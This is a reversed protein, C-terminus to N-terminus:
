HLQKTIESKVPLRHDAAVDVVLSAESVDLLKTATLAVIFIMCRVLCEGWGSSVLGLRRVVIAPSTPPLRLLSTALLFTM